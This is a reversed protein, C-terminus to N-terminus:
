FYDISFMPKGDITYVRPIRKGLQCVVEYNITNMHNAVEEVTICEDGSQGILIVEDNDAIGDIHSVDVMFQDMCVRGLIKASKGRILVRGVSSLSRPYGDGYGVPITAVKTVRETIYTGGYSIPYGEPLEKLMIVNSKLTLVPELDIADRKVESSPYLGYMAIGVRVMNFDAENLDILGASNSM